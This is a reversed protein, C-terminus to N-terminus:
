INNLSKKNLNYALSFYFRLPWPKKKRNWTQLYHRLQLTHKSNKNIEKGWM